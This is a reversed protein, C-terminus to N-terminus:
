SRCGSYCCCPARWYTTAAQLLSWGHLASYMRCRYLVGRGALLLTGFVATNIYDATLIVHSSIYRVQLVGYTYRLIYLSLIETLPRSPTGLKLHLQNALKPTYTIHAWMTRAHSTASFNDRLPASDPRTSCRRLTSSTTEISHLLRTACAVELSLVTRKMIGRRAFARRTQVAHCTYVDIM